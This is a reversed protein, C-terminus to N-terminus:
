ALHPQRANSLPADILQRLLGLLSEASTSKSVIPAGVTAAFQLHQEQTAEPTIFLTRRALQPSAEVLWSLVEPGEVEPVRLESLVADVHSGSALLEFAEQATAAIIINCDRGLSRVYGRLTQEDQDIVLVSPRQASGSAFTTAADDFTDRVRDSASVPLILIFTAGTGHVSEVILDGGLDRMISRSISLGLGTGVGTRKTTFFPDFIREIVRPSIGPGTDAVCVLVAEDDCRTSIKVRHSSRPVEAIAHAANILVNVLVQTLRGPPVLLRPIGRISDREVCGYREIEHRVLRVAQDVIDNIDVIDPAERGADARAFVRLDRVVDAIARSSALMDELLSGKDPESLIGRASRAVARLEEDNAGTGRAILTQIGRNLNRLGANCADATLQLATLPNNIEHAIGAVLTGLAALKEGHAFDATAQEQGRRRTARLRTRDLFGQITPADPEDWVLVEDSGASIAELAAVEDLAVYGLPAGGVRHRADGITESPTGQVVEIVMEEDGMAHQRHALMM